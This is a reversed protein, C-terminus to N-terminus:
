QSHMVVASSEYKNSEALQQSVVEFRRRRIRASNAVNLMKSHDPAPKNTKTKKQKKAKDKIPRVSFIAFRFFLSSSVIAYTLTRSAKRYKMESMSVKTSTQQKLNEM